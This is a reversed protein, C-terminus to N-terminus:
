VWDDSQNVAKQVAHILRRELETVDLGTETATISALKRAFEVLQTKAMLPVRTLRSTKALMTGIAELAICCAKDDSKSLGAALLNRFLNIERNLDLGMSDPVVPLKINAIAEYSKPKILKSV